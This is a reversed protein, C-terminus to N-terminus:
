PAGGPPRPQPAPRSAPGTAQEPAVINIDFPVEWSAEYTMPRDAPGLGLWRILRDRWTTQHRTLWYPWSCHYKAVVRQAGVPYPPVGWEFSREVARLSSDDRYVIERGEPVFRESSIFQGPFVPTFLQYPQRMKFEIQKDCAYSARLEPRPRLLLRVIQDGQEQSAYGYNIAEALREATEPNAWRPFEAIQRDIRAHVRADTVDYPFLCIAATVVAVAAGVVIM